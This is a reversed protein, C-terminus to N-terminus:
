VGLSKLYEIVGPTALGAYTGRLAEPVEPHLKTFGKVHLEYIVSKYLPTAPARDAGWDFAPDIVVCRQMFPASDRDDPTLDVYPDGITYGYVADNWQLKGTLAKAYPDVLLKAPNFRHGEEPEYPGHVRYGYLQGPQVGPLYVHWVYDTCEEIRIRHTEQVAHPEDFLCLDVAM